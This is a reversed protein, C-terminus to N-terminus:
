PRQHASVPPAPTLNDFYGIRSVADAATSAIIGNVPEANQPGMAQDIM